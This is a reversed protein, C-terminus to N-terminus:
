NNKNDNNNFLNFNKIIKNYFWDIIGLSLNNLINFLGSFDYGLYNLIYFILALKFPILLFKFNLKIVLKIIALLILVWFFIAWKNDVDAFNNAELKAYLM